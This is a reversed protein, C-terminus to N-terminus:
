APPLKGMYEDARFRAMWLKSIREEMASVGVGHHYMPSYVVMSCLTTRSFPALGGLQLSFSLLIVIHPALQRVSLQAGSRM